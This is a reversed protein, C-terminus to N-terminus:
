FSVKYASIMLSITGPAGHCWHVLIDSNSSDELTCPWNGSRFQLKGLWDATPLVINLLDDEEIADPYISCVKIM